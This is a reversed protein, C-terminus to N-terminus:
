SAAKVGLHWGVIAGTPSIDPTLLFTPPRQDLPLLEHLTELTHIAGKCHPCDKTTHLKLWKLLTKM